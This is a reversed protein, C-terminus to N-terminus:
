EAFVNPPDGKLRILKWGSWAVDDFDIDGRRTSAITQFRCNPSALIEAYRKLWNTDLPSFGADLILVTPATVSMKNAAKMGLQMLLRAQESSSMTRLVRTSTGRPTTALELRLHWGEEHEEFWVKRFGDDGEGLDDCLARADLPPVGLADAVLALEDPEETSFSLQSPFVAKVAGAVSVTAEGDLTYRPYDEDLFDVAICHPDPDCYHMETRLRRGDESYARRWRELHRADVHGAVWECLGTKGTSNGSVVLNLKAFEVNVGNAFLPSSKVEVRDVWGFPIPIGALERAIRSEHRNKFSHLKEAPYDRGLNKDILAAHHQCLWIANDASRLEDESLARNGRPGRGSAAAAYIHAAIGVDSVGCPDGGPGITLRDCGPFSCRYGARQAVFSRTRPRFEVRRSSANAM